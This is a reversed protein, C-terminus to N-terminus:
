GASESRGSTGTVSPGIRWLVAVATTPPHVPIASKGSTTVETRAHPVLAHAERLAVNDTDGGISFGTRLAARYTSFFMLMEVRSQPTDRQSREILRDQVELAFASVPLQPSQGDTLLRACRTCAFTLPLYWSRLEPLGVCCGCYQVRRANLYMRSFYTWWGFEPAGMERVDSVSLGALRAIRDVTRETPKMVFRSSTGTIWTPSVSNADALRLVLSNLSEGRVPVIRVPLASLTGGVPSVVMVELMLRACGMGIADLVRVLVLGSRVPLRSRTVLETHRVTHPILLHAQWGGM